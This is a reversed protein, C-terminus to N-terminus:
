DCAIRDNGLPRCFDGWGHARWYDVLGWDELLDPFGPHQRLPEMLPSWVAWIGRGRDVARFALDTDGHYAAWEAIWYDSGQRHDFANQLFALAAPRNELTEDLRRLFPQNLPDSAEALRRLWPRIIGPEGTALAATTAMSGTLVHNVRELEWAREYEALAEAPRRSLLEVHAHMSAVHPDLPEVLRAQRISERAARLHGAKIRFAGHTIKWDAGAKSEPGAQAVIAEASKWDFGAVHIDLQMALVGPMGPELRRAEDLAERALTTLDLEPPGGGHINATLTSVLALDFWCVACQPDEATAQELREIAALASATTMQDWLEWAERLKRYVRYDSTGGPMRGLQGVDLSISLATAVSEAIEQQITFYDEAPRDFVETWLTFGDHPDLLKATIRVQGGSERVSGGLLYSVGLARAIAEPPDGTNEFAFSSSRGTVRLGDLRSLRVILEETLGGALDISERAAGLNEFPLVALTAVDDGPTFATDEPVLRWALAIALALLAILLVWAIRPPRIGDRHESRATQDHANPVETVAETTAVLRFGVKPVTEIYRPRRASDGLTRRLEVICQTLTADSVVGGPWVADFLEDRTVVDGDAEVLRVLVAMSKPKLHVVRGGRRVTNRRPEVLWSGLRYAQEPM